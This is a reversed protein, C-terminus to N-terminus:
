TIKVLFYERFLKLDKLRTRADEMLKGFALNSLKGQVARYKEAATRVVEHKKGRRKFYRIADVLEKIAAAILLFDTWALPRCEPRGARGSFM